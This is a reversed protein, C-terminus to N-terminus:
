RAQTRWRLAFWLEMRTDPDNLDLDLLRSVQRLRHRVTNRHVGLDTATRDWNGHHALWSRLTGLLEGAAAAADLPGLLREAYRAAQASDLLAMVGHPEAGAVVCGGGIRAGDLAAGAEGWAPDLDDAPHPRSIGALHGADDLLGCLDDVPEGGPVIATFSDGDQEVFPTGLVASLRQVITERSGPPETLLGRVVRWPADEALDLPGALARALTPLRLLGAVAAAGLAEPSGAASPATFLLSLASAAVGVVGRDAVSFPGRRAVAMAYGTPAPGFLRQIEVHEVATVLAASMPSTSATARELAATLEADRRVPGASWTRDRNRDVVLVWGGLLEALREVVARLPGPGAAARILVAQGDSLHKLDRTEARVLEAHLLEVISAFPVHPPVELLAMGHEDCAAVLEPPVADFVPTVGFGLAVVGAEALRRVYAGSEAPRFGTGALLLLEGGRLFPSPDTLESVHVWRVWRGSPDTAGLPRLSLRDVFLRLPVM